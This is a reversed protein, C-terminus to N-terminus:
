PGGEAIRAVARLMDRRIWGSFVNVLTWYLAFRRRAGDDVCQVRSETVLNTSGDDLREIRICAAAKTWGSRDFAKFADLDAPEEMNARERIAWSRGTTEEPLPLSRSFTPLRVSGAVIEEGSREALVAFGSGGLAERISGRPVPIGRLRLPCRVLLSADRSLDYREVAWWVSEPPATVRLSHRSRFDFEPLVEDLLLSRVANM